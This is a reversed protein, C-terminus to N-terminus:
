EKRAMEKIKVKLFRNYNAPPPANGGTTIKLSNQKKKKKKQYHKWFTAREVSYM